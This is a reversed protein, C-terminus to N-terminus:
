ACVPELLAYMCQDLTPTQQRVASFVATEICEISLLRVLPVSATLMGVGACPLTKSLEHRGTSPFTALAATRTKAQCQDESRARSDM